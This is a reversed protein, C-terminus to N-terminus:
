NQKLELYKIKYKLHKQYYGGAQINDQNQKEKLELYKTKYKLYKRYYGGVLITKQDQIKNNNTDTIKDTKTDTIKDTKTDTIKDTKTDTLTKSSTDSSAILVFNQGLIHELKLNTGDLTPSSKILIQILEIKILDDFNFELNKNNSDDKTIMRKLFYPLLYLTIIYNHIATITNIDLPINKVTIVWDNIFEGGILTKRFFSSNSNLNNFAANMGQVTNQYNTQTSTPYSHPAHYAFSAKGDNTSVYLGAYDYGGKGWQTHLHAQSNQSTSRDTILQSSTPRSPHLSATVQQSPHTFPNSGFGVNVYTNKSNNNINFYSAGSARKGADEAQNKFSSNSVATTLQTGSFVSWPSSNYGQTTQGPEIYASSYTENRGDRNFQFSM